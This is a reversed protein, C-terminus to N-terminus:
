LAVAPWDVIQDGEPSVSARAVSAHPSIASAMRSGRGVPYLAVAARSALPLRAILPQAKPNAEFRFARTIMLLHANPAVVRRRISPWRVRPGAVSVAAACNKKGRRFAGRIGGGPHRDVVVVVALRRQRERSRRAVLVHPVHIRQQDPGDFFRAAQSRLTARANVRPHDFTSDASISCPKVSPAGPIHRRGRHIGSGGLAAEAGAGFRRQRKGAVIDDISEVGGM